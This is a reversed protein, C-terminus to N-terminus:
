PRTDGTQDPSTTLTNMIERAAWREGAGFNDEAYNVNADLIVANAHHKAAEIVGQLRANEAMLYALADAARRRETGSTEHHADANSQFQAVVRHIAEPSQDTM